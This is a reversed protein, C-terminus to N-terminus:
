EQPRGVDIRINRDRAANVATAVGEALAEWNGESIPNHVIVTVQQEGREQEERTQTLSPAAPTVGGGVGGGSPKTVSGGGGFKASKIKQVNVAAAAAAVAAFVGGLLPGGIINGQKFAGQVAAQGDIIAQSVNLAKTVEFSKKSETGIANALNTMLDKAGTVANQRAAIKADEGAKVLAVEKNVLAKAIAQSKAGKDLLLEIELDHFARIAEIEGTRMAALASAKEREISILEELTRQATTKGEGGKKDGAAKNRKIEAETNNNIQEEEKKLLETRKATLRALEAQLEAGTDFFDFADPSNLFAIEENLKELETRAGIGIVEGLNKLNKTVLKITNIFAPNQTVWDGIKQLMVEFTAVLRNLEFEFANIGETQDKFAQDAAGGATTMADLKENFVDAQAGNLAFAATLAEASGLLKAVSESSGDTTGILKRLGGVLGESEVLAEASSFGLLQVANAMDTTPKIMARQLAALQTSVEAAQGTVGTLTAFVAFLEEQSQGLKAALPIVKGMSSALEPFTTQGLKNTTFALDAVKELAEVSTDGYGKTVASLLNLSETTTALGAKGARAIIRLRKASDATDGFASVVQFLGESLDETSKGLEISLDQVNNKLEKIREANNPILTAVNAMSRNLENSARVAAVTAVTFAAMVTAAAAFGVKLEASLQKTEKELKDFRGNLDKLADKIDATQASIIIDLDERAM